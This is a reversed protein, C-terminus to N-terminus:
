EILLKPPKIGKTKAYVNRLVLYLFLWIILLLVGLLGRSIGRIFSPLEETLYVAFSMVFFFSLLMIWAVFLLGMIEFTEKVVKM